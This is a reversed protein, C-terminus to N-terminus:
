EILSIEKSFAINELTEEHGKLAAFPL